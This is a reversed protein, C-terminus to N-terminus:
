QRIGEKKERGWEGHDAHRSLDQEGIVLDHDTDLEWFKCYIVYFHEYSFYDTVANIDSEEELSRLIQPLPPPILSPLLLCLHSLAWSFHHTYLLASLLSSSYSVRPGSFLSALITLPTRLSLLPYSLCWQCTISTYDGCRLCLVLSEREGEKRLNEREGM